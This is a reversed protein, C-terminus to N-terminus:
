KVKIQKSASTPESTATATVRYTGAQTATFTTQAFGNNSTMAYKTSVVKNGRNLTFQMQQGAPFHAAKATFARKPKVSSPVQLTATQNVGAPTLAVQTSATPTSAAFFPVPNAAPLGFQFGGGSASLVVAGSNNSETSVQVIAQGSQNTVASTFKARGAFSGVASNVAFNIPVGEGVPNSFGDTVTAIATFTAGAPAAASSTTLSVNRATGPTAQFAVSGSLSNGSTATVPMAGAQTSFFWVTATTGSANLTLVKTGQGVAGNPSVLMGGGSTTFTVASNPFPAVVSVAVTNQGVVLPGQAAVQLAGGFNGAAVGNFLLNSLSGTGISNQWQV